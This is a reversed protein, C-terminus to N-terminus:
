KLPRENSFTGVVEGKLDYQTGGGEGWGKVKNATGKRVTTGKPVEVDCVYKPESPLAYKQQIQKPTLGEIDKAEMVWGGHKKSTKGDYVRVYKKNESLKVDYVKTGPKYPANEYGKTKKWWDNVAKATSVKTVKGDPTNGLNVKGNKINPGKKVNYKSGTGKGSPQKVKPIGNKPKVTPKKSLKSRTISLEKSYGQFAEPKKNKGFNKINPGKIKPKKKVQNAKVGKPIKAGKVGKVGSKVSSKGAVKGGVAIVVATTAVSGIGEPTQVKDAIGDGICELVYLPNDLTRTGFNKADEWLSELTQESGPVKGNKVDVAMKGIIIVRGLDSKSIVTFLVVTDGFEQLTKVSGKAVRGFLRWRNKQQERRTTLSKYQEDLARKLDDDKTEYSKIPGEYLTKIKAVEDKMDTAFPVLTDRRANSLKTYNNQQRKKEEAEEESFTRSWDSSVAKNLDQSLANCAREIQWLNFGVNPADVRVMTNRNKAEILGEMASIYGSLAKKMKGVRDVQSALDKDIDKLKGSLEKIVSSKQDKLCKKLASVSDQVTKIGNEYKELRTEIQDLEKYNLKLDTKM